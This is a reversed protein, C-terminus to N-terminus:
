NGNQRELQERLFTEIDRVTSSALAHILSSQAVCEVRVNNGWMRAVSVLEERDCTFPDVGSLKVSIFHKTAMSTNCRAM